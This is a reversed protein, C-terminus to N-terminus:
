CEASLFQSGAGSKLIIPSQANMLALNKQVVQGELFSVSFYKPGYLIIACAPGNDYISQNGLLM